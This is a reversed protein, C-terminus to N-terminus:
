IDANKLAKKRAERFLELDQKHDTIYKNALRTLLETISFGNLSSLDDLDSFMTPTFYISFKHSRNEKRDTKRPRGSPRRSKSGEATENVKALEEM